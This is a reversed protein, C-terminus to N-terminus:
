RREGSALLWPFDTSFTWGTALTGGDSEYKAVTSSVIDATGM